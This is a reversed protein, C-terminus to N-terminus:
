VSKSDRMLSHLMIFYLDDIDWSKSRVYILLNDSDTDKHLM